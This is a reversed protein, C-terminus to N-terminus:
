LGTKPKSGCVEIIAAAELLDPEADEFIGATASLWAVDVDEVGTSTASCVATEFVGAMASMASLWALDLDFIM